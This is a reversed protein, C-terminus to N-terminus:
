ARHQQIRIYGRPLFSGLRPRTGFLLQASWRPHNPQIGCFAKAVTAATINKLPITRFMNSYRDTICLLYRHGDTTKPLPGWIDIAVYELPSQASILSLYKAHKRLTIRERTSSSCQRVTHYADLARSPWYFTRRLTQYSRSGGPHGALRPYHALLLAQRRLTKPLIIQEANNKQARRCILGHHDEFYQYNTNNALRARAEQCFEDEKQEELLEEITLPPLPETVEAPEVAM